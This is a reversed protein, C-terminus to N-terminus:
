RASDSRDNPVFRVGSIREAEPGMADRLKRMKEPDTRNEILVHLLMKVARTAVGIEGARSPRDPVDYFWCDHLHILFITVEDPSLGAICAAAFAVSTWREVPGFNASM